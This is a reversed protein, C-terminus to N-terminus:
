RRYTGGLTRAGRRAIDIRLTKEQFVHKDYDLSPIDSLHIGAIALTGGRDLAEMIPPM